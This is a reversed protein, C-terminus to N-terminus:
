QSPSLNKHERCYKVDLRCHDCIVRDCKIEYDCYGDYDPDYILHEPVYDVDPGFCSMTEVTKRCPKSCNMCVDKSCYTCKDTNIRHFNDDPNSECNFERNCIQCVVRHRHCITTSINCKKNCIHCDHTCHYCGENPVLFEKPDIYIYKINDSEGTISYFTDDELNHKGCKPCEIVKLTTVKVM